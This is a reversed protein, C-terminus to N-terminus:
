SRAASGPRLARWPGTTGTRLAEMLGPVDVPSVVNRTAGAFRVGDFLDRGGAVFHLSYISEYDAAYDYRVLLVLKEPEISYQTCIASALTLPCLVLGPGENALETAVAWAQGPQVVLDCKVPRRKEDDYIHFPNAHVVGPIAQFPNM